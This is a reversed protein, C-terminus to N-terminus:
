LRDTTAGIDAGHQGSKMLLLQRRSAGENNFVMQPFANGATGIGVATCSISVGAGVPPHLRSRATKLPTKGSKGERCGSQGHQDCQHPGPVVPVDQARRAITRLDVGDSTLRKANARNTLLCEFRTVADGLTFEDAGGGIGTGRHPEKVAGFHLHILTRFQGDARVAAVGGDVEVLAADNDLGRMTQMPVQINASGIARYRDGTRDKGHVGASFARTDRHYLSFDANLVRAHFGDQVRAILDRCRLANPGNGDALLNAPAAVETVFQSQKRLKGSKAFFEFGNRRGAWAIFAFDKGHKRRIGDEIDANGIKSIGQMLCILDELLLQRLAFNQLVPPVLAAMRILMWSGFLQNSLNLGNALIQAVFDHNRESGAGGGAVLSRDQKGLHFLGAELIVQLIM